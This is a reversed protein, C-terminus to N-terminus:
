LSYLGFGCGAGDDGGGPNLSFYRSGSFFPFLTFPTYFKIIEEVTNNYSFM